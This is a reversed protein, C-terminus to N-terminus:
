IPPHWALRGNCVEYEQQLFNLLVAKSVMESGPNQNLLFAVVREQFSLQMYLVLQSSKQTCDTTAERGEGELLFRIWLLITTNLVM